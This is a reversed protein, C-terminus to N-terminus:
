MGIESHSSLNTVRENLIGLRDPQAPIFFFEQGETDLTQADVAQSHVLTELEPFRALYARSIAFVGPGLKEAVRMVRKIAPGQLMAQNATRITEVHARDIVASTAVDGRFRTFFALAVRLAALPETEFLGLVYGDGTPMVTFSGGSRIEQRWAREIISSAANLDRALLQSSTSSVIDLYLLQAVGHEDKSRRQVRFFELASAATAVLATVISVISWDIM